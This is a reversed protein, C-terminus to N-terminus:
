IIIDPDHYTAWGPHPGCEFNVIAFLVEPGFPLLVSCLFVPNQTQAQTTLIPKFNRHFRLYRSLEIMM